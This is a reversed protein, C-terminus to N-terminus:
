SDSTPLDSMTIPKVLYATINQIINKNLKRVKGNNEITFNELLSPNKNLEEIFYPFNGYKKMIAIATISSIGPIQCLIIEGINEPTINDKKVKKVFTCYSEPNDVVNNNIISSSHDSDKVIANVQSEQSSVKQNVEQFVLPPFDKQLYSPFKGKMFNSDIKDAMYILLEATEHISTTRFVSFGKFYNLSTMASYILRKQKSDRLESFMGEIIYIINHAPFGSSHRLRHSQEEYRGDKISSLLDQFTKREVIAIDKDSDTQILVDGLDLTRQSIQTYTDNGLYYSCKELLQLERTDIILKM